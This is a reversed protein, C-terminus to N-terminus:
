KDTCFVSDVKILYYFYQHRTKFYLNILTRYFTNGIYKPMSLVTNFSFIAYSSTWMKTSLPAAHPICPSQCVWLKESPRSWASKWLVGCFAHIKFLTCVTIVIVRTFTSDTSCYKSIFVTSCACHQLFAFLLRAKIVFVHLAKLQVYDWAKSVRVNM